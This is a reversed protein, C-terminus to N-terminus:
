PRRSQHLNKKTTQRFVIKRMLYFIEEEEEEEEEEKSELELFQEEDCNERIKKRLVFCM